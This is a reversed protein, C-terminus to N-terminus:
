NIAKPGANLRDLYARVETMRAMIQKDLNACHAKVDAPSNEPPQSRLAEDLMQLYEVLWVMPVRPAFQVQEQKM